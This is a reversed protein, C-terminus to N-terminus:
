WFEVARVRYFAFLMDMDFHRKLFLMREVSLRIFMLFTVFKERYFVIRVELIGLYDVSFRSNM